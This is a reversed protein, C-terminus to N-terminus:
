VSKNSARRSGFPTLNIIELESFWNRKCVLRALNILFYFLRPAGVRRSKSLSLRHWKEEHPTYLLHKRNVSASRQHPSRAFCKEVAPWNWYVRFTVTPMVTIKSNGCQISSLRYGTDEITCPAFDLTNCRTSSWIKPQYRRIGILRVMGTSTVKLKM